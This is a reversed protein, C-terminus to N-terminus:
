LFHDGGKRLYRRFRWRTLWDTHAADYAIQYALVSRQREQAKLSEFDKNSSNLIANAAILSLGIGVIYIIIALVAM